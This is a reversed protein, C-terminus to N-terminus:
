TFIPRVIYITLTSFPYITHLEWTLILLNSDIGCQIHPHCPWLHIYPHNPIHCLHHDLLQHELVHLRSGQGGGRGWNKIHQLKVVITLSLTEDIAKFIYIVRINLTHLPGRLYCTLCHYCVLSNRGFWRLYSYTDRCHITYSIFCSANAYLKLM